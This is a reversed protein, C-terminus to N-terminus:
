DDFNDLGFRDDIIDYRKPQCIKSPSCKCSIGNIAIESYSIIQASGEDCVESVDGTLLTDALDLFVLEELDSLDPVKGVLEPNSSFDLWELNVLLGILTSISGILFNKKLDLRRVLGNECHVGPWNCENKFQASELDEYFDGIGAQFYIDTLAYQQSYQYYKKRHVCIDDGLERTNTQSGNRSQKAISTRQEDQNLSQNPFLDKNAKNLKRSHLYKIPVLLFFLLLRSMTM